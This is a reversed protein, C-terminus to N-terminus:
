YKEDNFNYTVQDQPPASPRYRIITNRLRRRTHNTRKVRFVIFITLVVGLLILAVANFVSLKFILNEWWSQLQKLVELGFGLQTVGNNEINGEKPKLNTTNSVKNLNLIEELIDTNDLIQGQHPFNIEYIKQLGLSDVKVEERADTIEIKGDKISVIKGSMPLYLSSEQGCKSSAQQTLINNEVIYATKNAFKMQFRCKTEDYNIETPNVKVCKPVMIVDNESYFILQRGVRDNIRFYGRRNQRTIVLLDKMRKCVTAEIQVMDLFHRYKTADNESIIMENIERQDFEPKPLKTANNAATLYLGETTTYVKMGCMTSHGNIQFALNKSMSYLIDNGDNSLGNLTSIYNLPCEHVISKDWVLRSRGTSCTYKDAPCNKGFLRDSVSHATIIRTKVECRYGTETTTRMWAFKPKPTGDYACTYENCEMKSSECYNESIMRKCESESLDITKTQQTVTQSGFFNESSTVEIAEKSCEYAKGKVQNGMRSMLHIGDLGGNRVVFDFYRNGKVIKTSCMNNIDIIKGTRLEPTECFYFDEKFPRSKTALPVISEMNETINEETSFRKMLRSQEVTTTESNPSTTTLVQTSKSTTTRSITALTTTLTTTATVKSQTESTESTTSTTTSTTSSSTSSPSSPPSTSSTTSSILIESTTTVESSETTSLSTHTNNIEHSDWSSLTSNTEETTNTLDEKCEPETAPKRKGTCGVREPDYYTNRPCKYVLPVGWSACQIYKHPECKLPMFMLKNNKCLEVYNPKEEAMILPLLLFFVGLFTVLNSSQNRKPRTPRENEMVKKMYKEITKMDTFSEKPEWTNESEDYGKWKVLYEYRDGKKRHSVIKEIEYVPESVDEEVIKLRSLPYTDSLRQHLQDELIYNGNKTVEVVFYPGAYKNELKGRALSKAAVRVQTGIKLQDSQVKHSKDQHEKQKEQKKAISELAKPVKNEYLDKIEWARRAISEMEDLQESSWDEFTNMKRGFM